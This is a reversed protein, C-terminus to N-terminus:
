KKKIVKIKGTKPNFKILNGEDDFGSDIFINPSDNIHKEKNEKKIMCFRCVYFTGYKSTVFHDLLRYDDPSKYQHCVDCWVRYDKSKGEFLRNYKDGLIFQLLKM